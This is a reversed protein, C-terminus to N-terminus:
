ANGGRDLRNVDFKLTELAGRLSPDQIMEKRAEEGCKAVIVPHFKSLLCWVWRPVTANHLPCLMEKIVADTIETCGGTCGRLIARGWDLTNEVVALQKAVVDTNTVYAISGDSTVIAEPRGSSNMQRSSGHVYDELMKLLGEGILSNLYIKETAHHLELAYHVFLTPSLKLHDCATGLKYLVTPPTSSTLPKFTSRRKSIRANFEKEVELGTHYIRDRPIDNDREVKTPKRPKSKKNPM